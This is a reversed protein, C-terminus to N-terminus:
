NKAPGSKELWSKINRILDEIDRILATNNAQVEALNGAKASAEMQKARAGVEEAGIIQCNSKVGHVAVAYERLTSESVNRMNDLSAPVNTIYIELFRLYMEQDGDCLEIGRSANVGPIDINM